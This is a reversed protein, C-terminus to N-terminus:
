RRVIRKRLAVAVGALTTLLAPMVPSNGTNMPAVHCGGEVGNSPAVLRGISNPDTNDRPHDVPPPKPGDTSVDGDTNSDTDHDFNGDTDQEDDPLGVDEVAQGADPETGPDPKPDQKIQISAWNTAGAELNKERKATVYGAKTATIEITKLSLPVTPFNFVGKADTTVTLGNSLTVTVGAVGSTAINAPDTYVYGTLVVSAPTSAGIERLEINPQYHNLMWVYNKGSAGWAAAGWQCIGRVLCRGSNPVAPNVEHAACSNHGCWTGVCPSVPPTDPVLATQYAPRSGHKGCSAAYEYKDITNPAGKKVMIKKAVADAADNTITLRQDDYRQNCATDDIHYWTYNHPPKPSSVTRRNTSDYRLVFYLGYSKAAIAFAKYVESAGAISKFVGIEPPLVGKVYDDLNMEHIAIIPNAADTCGQAGTSDRRRGVRITPPQNAPIQYHTPSGHITPFLDDLHLPPVHDDPLQGSTTPVGAPNALTPYGMDVLASTYVHARAPQAQPVYQNVLRSTHSEDAVEAEIELEYYGQPLDFNWRGEVDTFTELNTGLVQVRANAIPTGTLGDTLQGTLPEANANFVLGLTCLAFITVATLRSILFSLHTNM